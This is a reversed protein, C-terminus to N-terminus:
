GFCRENLSLLVEIIRESTEIMLENGDLIYKKYDRIVEKLMQNRSM